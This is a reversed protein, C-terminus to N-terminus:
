LGCTPPEIGGGVVVLETCVAGDAQRVDLLASIKGFFEIRIKARPAESEPTIVVSEILSRIARVVRDREAPDENSVAIAASLEEINRGYGEAANPHLRVVPTPEAMVALQEELRRKEADMDMISRRLEPTPTGDLLEDIARTLRRRLEVHTIGAPPRTITRRSVSAM